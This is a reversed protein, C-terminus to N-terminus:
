DALQGTNATDYGGLSALDDRFARSALVEGLRVLRPDNARARDFVLDFREEDLPIFGLGHALAAPEAAVGVDVAGLAVAQAVGLHGRAEVGAGTLRVGARALAQDLLRNASAGPERRAVRLGRRGLDDISRPAGRQNRRVLLGQRWRALTFAHRRGRGATADGAVLHVGAVHTEGRGLQALAVETTAHIWVADVPETARHLHEVLVGLAPACGSILLRGRLAQLGDPQLLRSVGGADRLVDAAAVERRDLPHAVWRKGVLGLRGRMSSGAPDLWAVEVPEPAEDLSFLEEVQRGLLTALKLALATSPVSRGAEILGLAQRSVGARAALAEQTLGADTRVATLNSRFGRNSM